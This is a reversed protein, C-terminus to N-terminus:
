RLPSSGLYINWVWDSNSVYMTFLATSQVRRHLALQKTSSSDATQARPSNTQDARSIRFFDAGNEFSRIRPRTLFGTRLTKKGEKLRQDDSGISLFSM